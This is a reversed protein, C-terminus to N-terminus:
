IETLSRLDERQISSAINQIIIIKDKMVALYLQSMIFQLCAGLKVEDPHNNWNPAHKCHLLPGEKSIM